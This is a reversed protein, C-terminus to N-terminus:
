SQVSTSQESEDDNLLPHTEMLENLGTNFNHDHEHCYWWLQLYKEYPLRVSVVKSRPRAEPQM